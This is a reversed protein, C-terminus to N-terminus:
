EFPKDISADVGDEAQRAVADVAEHLAQPLDALPDAEDLNAVLFRRGEHGTSM